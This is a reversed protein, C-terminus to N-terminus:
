AGIPGGGRKTVVVVSPRPPVGDKFDPWRTSPNEFTSGSTEGPHQVTVFMTQEDPTLISACIEAGNPGTFFQKPLGRGPGETDIAYIADAISAASTAGDTQVWIRGKSDFMCNDPCSIWGNESTARHYMAGADIGPKGAMLFVNWKAEAAAHDAQAGRGGPPVIEIIHGHRNTARPNAKNVTEATRRDNNTLIVYTRGSVPSTEVDEPRDMKTAGLLDAAKRTYILVEAQSAFGNAATLPGQGHVVPLWKVNDDDAFQAVYLTGDDLLNRNAARDNPNYRGSTVFKYVYEFREDDGSYVVVRGDPNIVTTAAEHKIRGLATRKVPTSSPDYPDIEVVWGFRNPENPEKEVDFRDIHKVWGYWSDKSVGYRKYMAADPMKDADGGFYGNFNEECTLVTGWPTWGGGCNNLMGTVRRGTADASTKLKDDGAAPGSITMPTSSGTIRRNYRSGEVVQWSGGSKRVEVVSAGHAALEVETQAKSVKQNADRGAGLGAFMLNSNTYEHNIFLLGNESSQSGAPLPLYAIFDCNYGFQKEQAAASLNNANFEPAEGVLKDGWRILIGADYGEAVHHTADLTKALEKFTFSSPGYSQALAASRTLASGLTGVAATAALGRLADRRSLRAQIIEGISLDASVNVGIDESSDIKVQDATERELKM